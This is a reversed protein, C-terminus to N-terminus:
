SDSPLLVDHLPSILYSDANNEDKDQGADHENEAKVAAMTAQQEQYQIQKKTKKIIILIDDHYLQKHHLKYRSGDDARLSHLM